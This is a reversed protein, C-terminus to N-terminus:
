LLFMASYIIDSSIVHFVLQFGILFTVTMQIKFQVTSNKKPSYYKKDYM